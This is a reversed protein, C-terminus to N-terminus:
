RYIADCAAMWCTGFLTPDDSGGTDGPANPNSNEPDVGADSSDTITIDVLVSPAGAADPNVEACVQVTISEGPLLEGSMGDFINGAGNYSPDVVPNMTATSATIVPAATIAVFATGFNASSALNETLSLNNLAVNGTNLIVIEYTLKFNGDIGSPSVSVDILDKM